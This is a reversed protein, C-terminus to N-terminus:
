AGRNFQRLIAAIDSPNFALGDLEEWQNRNREEDDFLIFDEGTVGCVDAKNCGYPVVHVEDWQVSPLHEMLWEAKAALVDDFFGPDPDKSAWSIIVLKAGKRQAANLQRALASLNLLPRANMYPTADYARIMPLWNEVGYLDAITGDM